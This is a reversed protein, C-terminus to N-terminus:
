TIEPPRAGAAFLLYFLAIDHGPRNSRCKIRLVAQAIEESSLIHSERPGCLLTPDFSELATLIADRHLRLRCVFTAGEENLGQIGVVKSWKASVAKIRREVATRSKGFSAVAAEYTKGSIVAKLMEASQMASESAGNTDQDRGCPKVDKFM